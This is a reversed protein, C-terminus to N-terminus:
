TRQLFLTLCPARAASPSLSAQPPESSSVRSTLSRALRPRFVQAQTAPLPLLLHLPKPTPVLRVPEPVDHLGTHSSHSLSDSSGPNLLHSSGVTRLLRTHQAWKSTSCPLLPDDRGAPLPPPSSQLSVTTFIQVYLWCLEFNLHPPTLPFFLCLHNRPKPVSVFSTHPSLLPVM